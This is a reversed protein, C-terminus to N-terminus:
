DLAKLAFFLIKQSHTNCTTKKSIITSFSRLKSKLQHRWKQAAMVGLIPSEELFGIQAKEAYNRLNEANNNKNKHQIDIFCLAM